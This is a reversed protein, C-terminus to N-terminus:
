YGFGGGSGGGSSSTTTIKNGAPSLVYWVGGFANVGQGSTQGASKDGVFLYVPHGNYTVQSAGDSRRSLGVLSSKLGSGITPKGDARLPPWNASCAGLCASKSGSDKGFVYLSRGKSNVVINGLGSSAVGITAPRGSATKPLASASTGGSGCGALAVAAFALAALSALFTASRTYTM